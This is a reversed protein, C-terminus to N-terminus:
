ERHGESSSQEMLLQSNAPCLAFSDQFLGTRQRLVLVLISPRTVPNTFHYMAKRPMEWDEPLEKANM